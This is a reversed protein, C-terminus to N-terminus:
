LNLGFKLLSTAVYTGASSPSSINSQSSIFNGKINYSDVSTTNIIIITLQKQPITSRRFPNLRIRAPVM